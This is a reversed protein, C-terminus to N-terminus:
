EGIILGEFGCDCCIGGNVVVDGVDSEGCCCCCCCGDVVSVADVENVAIAKLLAVNDPDDFPAAEPVTVSLLVCDVMVLVAVGASFTGRLVVSGKVILAPAPGTASEVSPVLVLGIQSSADCCCCCFSADLVRGVDNGAVPVVLVIGTALLNPALMGFEIVITVFLPSHTTIFGLSSDSFCCKSIVSSSITLLKM